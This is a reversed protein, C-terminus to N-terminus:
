HKDVLVSLSEIIEQKIAIRVQTLYVNYATILAPDSIIKWTGWISELYAYSLNWLAIDLDPKGRYYDLMSNYLLQFGENSKERKILDNYEKKLQLERFIPNFNVEFYFVAIVYSFIGSQSLVLQQKNIHPSDLLTKKDEEIALKSAIEEFLNLKKRNFLGNLLGM